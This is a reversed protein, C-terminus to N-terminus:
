RSSHPYVPVRAARWAGERTWAALARGLWPTDELQRLGDGHRVFSLALASHPPLMDLAPQLAVLALLLRPVTAAEALLSHAAAVVLPTGSQQLMRLLLRLAWEDFHPSRAYLLARLLSIAHLRLPHPSHKHTCLMELLQRTREDCNWALAQLACCRAPCFDTVACVCVCMCGCVSARTRACASVCVTTVARVLHEAHPLFAATHLRAFLKEEALLAAGAPSAAFM